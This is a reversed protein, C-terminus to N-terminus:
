DHDDNSFEQIVHVKSKHCTEVSIERALLINIETDFNELFYEM